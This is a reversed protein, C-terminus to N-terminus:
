RRGATSNRVILEGPLREHRFPVPARGELRDVLMKVGLRAMEGVPQRVTTLSFAEWAAMDIDDYGVIWLDEPVPIGQARAADLAGFAIVDNVCFVATPAPTRQMLQLLGAHGSAHTFEGRACMDDRLPHGAELLARRYGEEREAGTSIGVPGAILGFREHGHRLMYRAITAGGEHNDSSVKDCPLGALTRNLLVIPAGQRIAESLSSSSATVTTYIVGDVAGQRIAGLASPEGGHDSVWLNMQRDANGIEESLADILEPYFPNTVRGVVVGIVGTLRTRMTRAAANPRYGTAKMTRLVRERVADSVHPYGRVVRSVTSQSVGSLTAIDRSTLKAVRQDEGAPAGDDPV